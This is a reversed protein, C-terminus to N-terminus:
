KHNEACFKIARSAEELLEKGEIALRLCRNRERDADNKARREIASLQNRMRDLETRRASEDIRLQALAIADSKQKAKFEQVVSQLTAIQSRANKLEETEKAQYYGASYATVLSVIGGAVVMFIKLKTLM